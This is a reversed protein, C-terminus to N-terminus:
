KPVVLNNCTCGGPNICKLFCLKTAYVYGLINKNTPNTAVGKDDFKVYNNLNLAVWSAVPILMGNNSGMAISSGCTVMVHAVYKERPKGETDAGTFILAFGATLDSLQEANTIPNTKGEIFFCPIVTNQTLSNPVVQFIGSLYTYYQVSNYCINSSLKKIDNSFSEQTYNRPCQEPKTLGNFKRVVETVQHFEDYQMEM